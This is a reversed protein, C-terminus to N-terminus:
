NSCHRLKSRRRNGFTATVAFGLLLITAPEPVRAIQDQGQDPKADFYIAVSTNGDISNIYGLALQMIADSATITFNGGAFLVQWIAVQLAAAEDDTGASGYKNVLWAVKGPGGAVSNLPNFPPTMSTTTEVAVIQHHFADDFLDACYTTVFDVFHGGDDSHLWNIEGAWGTFSDGNITLGVGRGKGLKVFDLTDALAAAPLLLTLALVGISVLRKM